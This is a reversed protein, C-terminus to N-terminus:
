EGFGEVVLLVWWLRDSSVNAYSILKASPKALAPQFDSPHIFGSQCPISAASTTPLVALEPGGSARQCLHEPQEPQLMASGYREVSGLRFALRQYGFEIGM